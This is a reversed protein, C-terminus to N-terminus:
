VVEAIVVILATIGSAIYLGIPFGQDATRDASFFDPSIAFYIGFAAFTLPTSIVGILANDLLLAAVRLWFGALGHSLVSGDQPFEGQAPPALM